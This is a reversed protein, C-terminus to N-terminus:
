VDKPITENPDVTAASHIDRIALVLKRIAFVLLAACGIFFGLNVIFLPLQISVTVEGTHFQTSVITFTLYTFVAAFVLELCTQMLTISHYTRPRNVFKSQVLDLGILGRAGYALAGGIWILWIFNARQIDDIWSTSAGLVNRSFVGWTQLCIAVLVVAGVVMSLVFGARSRKVNDVM